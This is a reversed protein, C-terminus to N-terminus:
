LSRPAQLFLKNKSCGPIADKGHTKWWVLPLRRSWVTWHWVTSGSAVCVESRGNAVQEWNGARDKAIQMEEFRFYFLFYIGFWLRLEDITQFIWLKSSSWKTSTPQPANNKSQLRKKDPRKAATTRGPSRTKLFSKNFQEHKELENPPQQRSFDAARRVRHAVSQTFMLRIRFRQNMGRSTQGSRTPM